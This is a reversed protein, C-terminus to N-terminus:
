GHSRCSYARHCRERRFVLKIDVPENFVRWRRAFEHRNANPSRFCPLMPVPPVHMALTRRARNAVARVLGTEDMEIKALGFDLVKVQGTTTLM